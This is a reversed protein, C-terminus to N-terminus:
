QIAMALQLREEPKIYHDADKADDGFALEVWNVTGTFERRSYDTTVPSGYETGIDCTEDASFIQPETQDIRGDGVPKGDVYLTLKGGKAPGGGDYDFEARVQHRGEPLKDSSEAYYDNCIRFLQLLTQAHRRRTSVGVAPSGEM